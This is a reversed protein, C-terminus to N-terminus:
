FVKLSNKLLRTPPTYTATRADSLTSRESLNLKGIGEQERDLVEILKWSIAGYKEGKLPHPARIKQIARLTRIEVIFKKIL